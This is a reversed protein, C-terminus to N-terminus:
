HSTNQLLLLGMPIGGILDPLGDGNFDIVKLSYPVDKGLPIQSVDFTGDGHGLLMTFSSSRDNAIAVDLHGDRNFDALVPDLPAKETVFEQGPQFWGAGDGIVIRGKRLLGDVGVGDLHGDENFDGLELSAPQLGVPVPKAPLFTWPGSRLLVNPVSNYDLAVLDSLGDSDLDGMVPVSLSLAVGHNGVPMAVYAGHGDSRGVTLLAKGMPNPAVGILDAAGDGDLDRVVLGDWNQAQEPNWYTPITLGGAGDGLLTAFGGLGVAAVVDTKGDGNVDGVRLGDYVVPNTLARPVSSILGENANRRFAIILRGGCGTVVDESSGDGFDGVGIIAPDCGPTVFTRATFELTTLPGAVLDAGVISLDPEVRLDSRDPGTSLDPALADMSLDTHCGPIAFALLVLYTRPRKM